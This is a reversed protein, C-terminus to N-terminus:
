NWHASGVGNEGLNMIATKTAADIRLRADISEVFKKQQVRSGAMPVLIMAEVQRKKLTVHEFARQINRIGEARLVPNQLHNITHINEGSPLIDILNQLRAKLSRYPRAAAEAPPETMGDIKDLLQQILEKTLVDELYFTQAFGTYRRTGPHRPSDYQSLRSRLEDRYATTRNRFVRSDMPEPPEASEKEAYKDFRRKRTRPSDPSLRPTMSTGVENVWNLINLANGSLDRNANMGPKPYRRTPTPQYHLNSSPVEKYEATENIEYDQRPRRPRRVGLISVHARPVDPTVTSPNVEVTGPPLDLLTRRTGRNYFYFREERGTGSKKPVYNRRTEWGDPLRVSFDRRRPDILVNQNEPISEFHASDALAFRGWDLDGDGYVDWNRVTAGPPLDVTSTNTSPDNFYPANRSFSHAITWPPQLIVERVDITGEPPEMQRQHTEDNSYVLRNTPVDRTVKWPQPPIYFQNSLEKEAQTM